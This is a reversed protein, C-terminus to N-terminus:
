VRERCVSKRDGEERMIRLLAPNANAKVSYNVGFGPHSSLGKMERCARRLISENYIYLPTGFMAALDHPSHKGYFHLSDTYQSRIDPM